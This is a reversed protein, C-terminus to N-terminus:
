SFIFSKIYFAIKRIREVLAFDREMINTKESGILTHAGVQAM